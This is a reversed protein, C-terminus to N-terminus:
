RAALEKNTIVEYPGVNFGAGEFVVKMFHKDMGMASAAIGSGLSTLFARCNGANGKKSRDMKM